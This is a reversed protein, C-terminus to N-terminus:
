TKLGKFTYNNVKKNSQMPVLRLISLEKSLNLALEAQATEIEEIQKNSISHGLKSLYVVPQKLGTLSHLGLGIACHKSTLFKGKSLAFM